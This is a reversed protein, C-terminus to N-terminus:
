KLIKKFRHGFKILKIFSKNPLFSIIYFTVCLPIKRKNYKVAKLLSKRGDRTKRAIIEFLGKELYIPYLKKPDYKEYDKGFKRLLISYLIPMTKSRQMIQNSGTLRDENETHYVRLSKNIFLSNYQRAIDLWLINEMGGPLNPFRFNKNKFIYSKMIGWKEGSFFKGQILDKFTVLQYNNTPYTGIIQGDPTECNYITNIINKNNIKQFDDITIKLANKNLEDDSDLFTVYEGSMKDLGKNRASNVGRNTQFKFYKIRKDILYKSIVERTNDTSGDDIILLEWNPYTQNIISEIAREICWTRNYTAIIISINPFNKIRKKM